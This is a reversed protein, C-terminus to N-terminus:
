AYPCRDSRARWRVAEPAPLQWPRKLAPWALSHASLLRRYRRRDRPELCEQQGQARFNGRGFRKLLKVIGFLALGLLLFQILVTVFSGYRIEADNVTFSLQTFDPAGFIAAVFQLLIDNALSDM